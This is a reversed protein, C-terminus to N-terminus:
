SLLSAITLKDKDPEFQLRAQEYAGSNGREVCRIESISYGSGNTNSKEDQGISVTSAEQLGNSENAQGGYSAAGGSNPDGM